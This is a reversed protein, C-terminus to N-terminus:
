YEEIDAETNVTSKEPNVKAKIQSQSKWAKGSWAQNQGNKSSKKDKQRIDTE